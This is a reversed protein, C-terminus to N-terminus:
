KREELHKAYLVQGESSQIAKIYAEAETLTPTEAKLGEAMKLIQGEASADVDAANDSGKEDLTEVVAKAGKLKETVKQVEDPSLGDLMKTVVDADDGAFGLETAKAIAENHRLDNVQKALEANETELKTITEDRKDVPEVDVKEPTLASLVKAFFGKQEERVQEIQEVVDKTDSMGDETDRKFLLVNAGPNAGKDVLDVRDVRLNKLKTTM